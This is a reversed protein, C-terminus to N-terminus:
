IRYILIRHVKGWVHRQMHHEHGGIIFATQCPNTTRQQQNTNGHCRQSGRSGKGGAVEERGWFRQSGTARITQSNEM